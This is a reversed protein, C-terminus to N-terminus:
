AWFLPSLSLADVKSIEKLHFKADAKGIEKLYFKLGWWTTRHCIRCDRVRQRKLINSLGSPSESDKEQPGAKIKRCWRSVQKYYSGRLSAVYRTFIPYSNRNQTATTRIYWMSARLRVELLIRFVFFVVLFSHICASVSLFYSHLREILDAKLGLWLLCSLTVCSRSIINHARPDYSM